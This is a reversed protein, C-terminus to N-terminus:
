RPAGPEPMSAPPLGHRTPASGPEDEQQDQHDDHEHGVFRVSAGIQARSLMAGPAARVGPNGLPSTLRTTSPSVISTSSSARDVAPM